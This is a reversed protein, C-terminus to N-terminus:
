KKKMIDTLVISMDTHASHMNAEGVIATITGIFPGMRKDEEILSLGKAILYIGLNLLLETAVEPSHTNGIHTVKTRIPILLEEAIESFIDHKM